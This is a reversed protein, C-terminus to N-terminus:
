LIHFGCEIGRIGVGFVEIFSILIIVFREEGLSILLTRGLLRGGEDKPSPFFSLGDELFSASVGSFPHM